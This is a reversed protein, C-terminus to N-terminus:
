AQTPTGTTRAQTANINATPDTSAPPPAHAWLVALAGTLIQTPAGAPPVVSVMARAMECAKASCNPRGTTTSFRGPAPPLKAASVTARDGASPKFRNILKVLWVMLAESYGCNGNSGTRSKVGKVMTDVEGDMKTAWGDRLALLRLSNSAKARACGPLSLKAMPPRPEDKCKAPSANLIFPCTNM